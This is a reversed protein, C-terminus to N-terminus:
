SVLARLRRAGISALQAREGATIGAEWALLLTSSGWALWGGATLRPLLASWRFLVVVLSPIAVTLPGLVGKLFLRARTVSFTRYTYHMSVAFHMGVSAFSGILTGYAVGMAGIRRALLISCTVNVVAEATAGAIAVNQRGSATLMTAYPLCINRVINALLLVRLFAITHAAYAAGVWLSLIWYGSLMMPLGCLLLLVTSYRTLRSLLEGMAEASRSASLASAAPLLPGLAAGMISLIFNTPLTAISYFATQGFDFHGVITVDLGSVCLMGVTWIGMVSCYSLMQKLVARDLGAFSLRVHSAMRRWASIQIMGTAVNVAAVGAGMIALGGHLFVTSVIVITFLARNLLSIVMPVSYRQLGLFIASPVSGLLGLSLSVGILVLSIRVSPYLAPPMQAFLHPVRWALTLTLIVGLVAALSMLALGASARMGAGTSDAKAEFEAVYKAVATQVGFDLYGVYASMQLLLVWASYTKVPLRHTLYAPLVLAVVTTALLRGVSILSNRTFTAAVGGAPRPIPAQELDPAVSAPYVEATLSTEVYTGTVSDSEHV